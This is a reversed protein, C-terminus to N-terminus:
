VVRYPRKAPSTSGSPAASRKAGAAPLAQSPAPSGGAAGSAEAAVAKVMAEEAAREEVVKKVMAEETARKVAARKVAAEEVAGKDAAEKDAAAAEDRVAPGDGSLQRLRKQLPEDENSSVEDDDLINGLSSGSGQRPGRCADTLAKLSAALLTDGLSSGPGRDLHMIDNVGTYMWTPRHSWDQLPALCKSLFDHLMMLLTLRNKALYQIRDLV